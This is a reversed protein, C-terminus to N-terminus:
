DHTQSIFCPFKLTQGPYIVDGSVSSPILLPKDFLVKLILSYVYLPEKIEPIFEVFGDSDLQSVGYSEENIFLEISLM